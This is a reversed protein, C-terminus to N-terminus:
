MLVRDSHQPEPQTEGRLSKENQFKLRNLNDASQTKALSTGGSNGENHMRHRMSSSNNAMAFYSNKINEGSARHSAQLMM